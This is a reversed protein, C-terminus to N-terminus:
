AHPKEVIGNTDSEFTVYETVKNCQKKKKDKLTQGMDYRLIPFRHPRAMKESTSQVTTHTLRHRTLNGPQRFARGCHDCKFPKEGTHIREASRKIACMVDIGKRIEEALQDQLDFVRHTAIRFSIDFSCRLYEIDDQEAAPCFPIYAACMIIPKQKNLQSIRSLQIMRIYCRAQKLNVLG